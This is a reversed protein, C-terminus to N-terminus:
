SDIAAAFLARPHFRRQRLLFLSLPPEAHSPPPDNPNPRALLSDEDHAMAIDWTTPTLCVHTAGTQVLAPVLGGGTVRARSVVCLAAGSTLASYVDGLTPDFTHASALLVKPLSVRLPIPLPIRCVRLLKQLRLLLMRRKLYLPQSQVIRQGQLTMFPPLRTRLTGNQM